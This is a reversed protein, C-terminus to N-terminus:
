HIIAKGKYNVHEPFVKIWTEDIKPLKGM